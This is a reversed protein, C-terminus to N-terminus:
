PSTGDGNSEGELKKPLAAIHAVEAEDMHCQLLHKSIKTKLQGCYYCSQHKNYVRRGQDTKACPYFLEASEAGQYVSSTHQDDGAEIGDNDDHKQDDGAESHADNDDHKQDDGAESHIMGYVTFPVLEIKQQDGNM